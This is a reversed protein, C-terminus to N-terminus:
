YANDMHILLSFVHHWLHQVSLSLRICAACQCNFIHWEPASSVTDMSDCLISEWPHSHQLTYGQFTCTVNWLQYKVTELVKRKRQHQWMVRKRITEAGEEERIELGERKRMEAVRREEREVVDQQSLLHYDKMEPQLCTTRRLGRILDSTCPPNGGCGNGFFLLLSCLRCWWRLPWSNRKTLPSHTRDRGRQVM